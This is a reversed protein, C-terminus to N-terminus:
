AINNKLADSKVKVMLYMRLQASNRSQNLRQMGEPAVEGRKELLM